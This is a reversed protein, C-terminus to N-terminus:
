KEWVIKGDKIVKCAHNAAFHYPYYKYNPIDLIVFDAKKGVEISGIEKDLDLAKAANITIGALAEYPSMGMYICALSTMFGINDTMSSGPNFDTALAVSLGFDLMKRADAYKQKLYFAVGPLLVPVVRSEKMAQMGEEDTCLLHEASVAGLRAALKAGGLNTFEDAHVKLKFGMDKAAKLIKESEEYSYVGEECFIDCFLALENLKVEPLVKDIVLNIYEEKKDKYEMPVEHAGLFTSVITQPGDMALKNIVNLTKIEDELNLGYGSKLEITTVGYSLCNALRKQSIEYLEHFSSARLSRVSSQIGGGERAIDQYTKGQIRMEFENSREGAFVLHTHCDVFGPMVVMKKADIKNVKYDVLIEDINPPCIKVIRDEKILVAANKYVSEKELMSFTVLEGINYILTSTGPM